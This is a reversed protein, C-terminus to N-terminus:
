YSIVVPSLYNVTPTDVTNADRSCLYVQSHRIYNTKLDQFKFCTLGQPESLDVAEILAVSGCLLPFWLLPLHLSQM